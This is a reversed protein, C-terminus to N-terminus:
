SCLLCLEIPTVPCKRLVHLHASARIPRNYAAPGVQCEYDADDSLSVNAIQLGFQGSNDSGLVTYRPIGPISRDYGILLCFFPILEGTTDSTTTDYTITCM